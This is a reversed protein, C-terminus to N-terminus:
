SRGPSVGTAAIRYCRANKDSTGSRGKIPTESSIQQSAVRGAVRRPRERTWLLVQVQGLMPQLADAELSLVERTASYSFVPMNCHVRASVSRNLPVNTTVKLPSGSGTAAAKLLTGPTRIAYTACEREAITTVRQDISQRRCIKASGLRPEGLSDEWGSVAPNAMPELRARPARRVRGM